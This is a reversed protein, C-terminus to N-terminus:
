VNHPSLLFMSVLHVPLHQFPSHIWCAPYMQPVPVIQTCQLITSLNLSFPDKCPPLSNLVSQLDVFFWISKVSIIFFSSFKHWNIRSGVLRLRGVLTLWLSGNNVCNKWNDLSKQKIISLVLPSNILLNSHLISTNLNFIKIRNYYKTLHSLM